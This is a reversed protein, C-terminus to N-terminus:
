GYPRLFFFFINTQGKWVSGFYQFILTLKKKKKKKKEIRLKANKFLFTQMGM